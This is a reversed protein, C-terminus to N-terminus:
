KSIEVLKKTISTADDSKEIIKKKSIELKNLLYDHKLTYESFIQSWTKVYIKYNLDEEFGALCDDNLHKFQDIKSQLYPKSESSSKELDNGVLIFTWKESRNNFQSTNLILRMYKEVQDFQDKGLKVKPSKLEVVINEIRNGVLKSVMFIDMEKNKDPHEIKYKEESEYGRLIFLYKRLAVEFDDEEASVLAYQEGFIWTHAEIIKQLHDRENTGYNNNNFLLEKLSDIIAKHDIILNVMRTIHSLKTHQLVRSLDKIEVDDLNVVGKMVDMLEDMIDANLLMQLFGVFTKKQEINFQSFIKPQVVYLEKITDKIYNVQIGEFENRPTQFVDDKEYEDILTDAYTRLFPKRKKRLYETLQFQLDKWEEDKRNHSKILEQQATEDDAVFNFDSFYKSTIYLSHFFSDGKKNLTTFEKWKETNENDLYYFKSLEQNLSKNWRIYKVGFDFERVKISFLESDGIIEQYDLKEDNLKLVLNKNLELYWAFELVLYNKLSTDFVTQAKQLINTFSVTTGTHGNNSETPKTEDYKNIFNANTEISYEYLKTEERYITTWKVQEAFKFFTLRGVGNKGHSSSSNRIHTNQELKNSDFFPKFTTNLSKYDIGNGNDTIIIGDIGGLQNRIISVCVENAKADFGNWIYEVIAQLENYKRLSYRTGKNTIEIQESM